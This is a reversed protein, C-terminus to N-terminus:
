LLPHAPNGVVVSDAAVDRCVIAGAGIVAGKGITKAKGPISVSSLGMFVHEGIHTYAGATTKAAIFTHSGIQTDHCILAYECIICNEAIHAHAQVKSYAHLQCGTEITAFRSIISTPHLLSPCVGGLSIIRTFLDARINNNGMSLAYYRGALSKEKFLDEYSGVIRIGYRIEGTCGPTYHYLGAVHYGCHEALEIIEPTYHGVGLIYIDQIMSTQM